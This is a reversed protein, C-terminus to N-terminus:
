TEKLGYLDLWHLVDIKKLDKFLYFEWFLVSPVVPVKRWNFVWLPEEPEPMLFYIQVGYPLM